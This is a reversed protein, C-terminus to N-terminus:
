VRRPAARPRELWPAPPPGSARESYWKVQRELAGALKRLHEPGMGAGADRVVEGPVAAEDRSPQEGRLIRWAFELYRTKGRQVVEGAWKSRADVGDLAVAVSGATNGLLSTRHADAEAAAEAAGQAALWAAVETQSAKLSTAM